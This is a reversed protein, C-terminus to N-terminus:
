VMKLTLIASCFRKKDAGKVILKKNEETYGMCTLLVVATDIPAIYKIYDESEMDIIGTNETNQVVENFYMELTKFCICRDAYTTNTRIASIIESDAQEEESLMRSPEVENQPMMPVLLNQLMINNKHIGFPISPKYEDYSHMTSIKKNINLIRKYLITEELMKHRKFIDMVSSICMRAKDIKENEAYLTALNTTVKIIEKSKETFTFAIDNMTEKYTSKAEELMACMRQANGLNVMIKCKLGSDKVIYVRMDCYELAKQYYYLANTYNKSRYVLNGLEFLVSAQLQKNDSLIEECLEAAKTLTKKAEEPQKKARQCVSFHLMARIFDENNKTKKLSIIDNIYKQIFDYALLYKKNSIYIQAIKNNAEIIMDNLSPSEQSKIKSVKEFCKIANEYNDTEMLINGYLFNMLILNNFNEEKPNCEKFHRAATIRDSKYFYLYGRFVTLFELIDSKPYHKELLKEMYEFLDECIIFSGIEISIRLLKECINLIGYREYGTKFENINKLKHWILKIDSIVEQRDGLLAKHRCLLIQLDLFQRQSIRKENGNASKDLLGSISIDIQARYIEPSCLNLNKATTLNDPLNRQIEPLILESLFINLHCIFSDNYESLDAETDLLTELCKLFSHSNGSFYFNKIAYILAEILHNYQSITCYKGIMELLNNLHDINFEASDIKSIANIFSYPNKQFVRKVKLVHDTTMFQNTLYRNISKCVCKLPNEKNKILKGCIKCWNISYNEKNNKLEKLIKKITYFSPRNQPNYELAIKLIKIIIESIKNNEDNKLKIKDLEEIFKGYEIINEKFENKCIKGTAYYYVLTGWLFIDQKSFDLVRQNESFSKSNATNILNCGQLFFQLEPSAFDSNKLFNLGEFYNIPIWKPIIKEVIEETFKFSKNDFSIRIDDFNVGICLYGNKELYYFGDLLQEAFDLLESGNRTDNEPLKPIFNGSDEYLIDFTNESLSRKFARPFMPHSFTLLTTFFDEQILNESQDSNKYSKILLNPCQADAPDPSCIRILTIAPSPNQISIIKSKKVYEDLESKLEIELKPEKSEM